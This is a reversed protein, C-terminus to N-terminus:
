VYSDFFSLSYILIIILTFFLFYIFPFIGKETLCCDLYQRMIEEQRDLEKEVLFQLPLLERSNSVLPLYCYDNEINNKSAGNVCCQKCDNNTVSQNKEVVNCNCSMMVCNSIGSMPVLSSFHGKTYALAIPSKSCFKEASFFIM